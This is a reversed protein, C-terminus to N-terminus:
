GDRETQFLSERWGVPLTALMEYATFNRTVHICRGGASVSWSEGMTSPKSFYAFWNSNGDMSFWTGAKFGPVSAPFEVRPKPPAPLDLAVRVMGEELDNQKIYCYPKLIDEVWQRITGYTAGIVTVHCRNFNEMLRDAVMKGFSELTMANTPM